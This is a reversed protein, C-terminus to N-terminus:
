EVVALEHGAFAMKRSRTQNQDHSHGPGSFSGQCPFNEPTDPGYIEVVIVDYIREEGMGSVAPRVVLQPRM